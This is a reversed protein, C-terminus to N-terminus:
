MTATERVIQCMAKVRSRLDDREPNSWDTAGLYPLPADHAAPPHLIRDVFHVISGGDCRIDSKVVRTVIRPERESDVWFSYAGGVSFGAKLTAEFGSTEVGGHLAQNYLDEILYCGRLVHMNFCREPFATRPHPYRGDHPGPDSSETGAEAAAAVTVGSGPAADGTGCHGFATDIPVLFTRNRLAAGAQQKVEAMQAGSATLLRAAARGGGAAAPPPM